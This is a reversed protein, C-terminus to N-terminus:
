LFFDATELIAGLSKQRGTQLATHRGRECQYPQGTNGNFFQSCSTHWKRPGQERPYGREPPLWRGHWSARHLGGVLVWCWSALWILWSHPLLDLRWLVSTGVLMQVAVQFIVRRWLVRSLWQWDQVMSLRHSSLDKNWQDVLNYLLLYSVRSTSISSSALFIYVRPGLHLWHCPCLAWIM